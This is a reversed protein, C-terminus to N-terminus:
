HTKCRIAKANTCSKVNKTNVDLLSGPIIGLFKYGGSDSSVTSTLVEDMSHTFLLTELMFNGRVFSTIILPCVILTFNQSVQKNYRGGRAEWQEM